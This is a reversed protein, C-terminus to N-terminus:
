KYKHNDIRSLGDVLILVPKEEQLFSLTKAIMAPECGIAAAAEEVTASSKEPVIIRDELGYFALHAKAKEFAM